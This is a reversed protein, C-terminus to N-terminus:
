VAVLVLRVQARNLSWRVATRVRVQLRLWPVELLPLM